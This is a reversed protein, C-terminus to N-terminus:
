FKLILKIPFIISIINWSSVGKISSYIGSMAIATNNIASIKIRFIPKIIVLACVFRFKFHTAILKKIWNPTMKKILKGVNKIPIVPAKSSPGSGPIIIGIINSENNISMFTILTNCLIPMLRDTITANKIKTGIIKAITMKPSKMDFGDFPRQIKRFALKKISLEIWIFLKM